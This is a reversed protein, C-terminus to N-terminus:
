IAFRTYIMCMINPSAFVLGLKKYGIKFQITVYVRILLFAFMYIYAFNHCHSEINCSVNINYLMISEMFMTKM